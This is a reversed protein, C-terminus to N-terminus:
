GNASSASSTASATSSSTTAKRAPSPGRQTPQPKRTLGPAIASAPIGALAQSILQHRLLQLENWDAAIEPDVAAADRYLAWGTAAREAVETIPAALEALREWPPLGAFRRSADEPSGAGGALANEMYGRLLARLATSTCVTRSRSPPVAM